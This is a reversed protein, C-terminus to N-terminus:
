ALWAGMAREHIQDREGKAWKTSDIMMWEYEILTDIKKDSSYMICILMAAKSM